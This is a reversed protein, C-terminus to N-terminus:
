QAHLATRGLSSLHIIFCYMVKINERGMLDEKICCEKSESFKSCELVTSSALAKMVTLM